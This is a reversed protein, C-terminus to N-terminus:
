RYWGLFFNDWINDIEVVFKFERMVEVILFLVM